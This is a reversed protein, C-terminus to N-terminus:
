RPALQQRFAQFQTKPVSFSRKPKEPADLAAYFAQAAENTGDTAWDFRECQEEEAVALLAAILARGVGQGRGHDAVFLEKMVLAIGAAAPFALGWTAFGLAVEGRFALHCAMHREAELLRLVRDEEAAKAPAIGYHALCARHLARFAEAHEPHYPVVSLPGAGGSEMQETM